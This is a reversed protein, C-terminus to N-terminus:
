LSTIIRGSLLPAFMGCLGTFFKWKHHLFGRSQSLTPSPKALKHRISRTLLRAWMMYVERRIALGAIGVNTHTTGERERRKPVNGADTHTTAKRERRVTVNGVDMHTTAKRERRVTVNGVDM